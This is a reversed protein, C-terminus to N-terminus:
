KQGEQSRESNSQTDIDQLSEVLGLGSFFQRKQVRHNDSSPGSISCYEMVEQLFIPKMLTEGLRCIRM